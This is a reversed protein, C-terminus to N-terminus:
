KYLACPLGNVWIKELRIAKTLYSDNTLYPDNLLGISFPYM